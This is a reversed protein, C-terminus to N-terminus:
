SAERVLPVETLNKDNVLLRSTNRNKIYILEVSQHATDLLVDTTTIQYSTVTFRDFLVM